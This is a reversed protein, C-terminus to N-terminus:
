FDTDSENDSVVTVVLKNPLCILSESNYSVKGQNVCLKDPCSAEKIYAKGDKIVLLNYNDGSAINYEGDKDLPYTAIEKKNLTVRVYNGNSKNLQFYLFVAVAVVVIIGVLIIDFKHKRIFGTM